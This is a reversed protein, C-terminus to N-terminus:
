KEQELSVIKVCLVIVHMAEKLEALSAYTPALRISNDKPNDSFPYTANAATLVVGINKLMAVIKSACNDKTTLHIFYGGKPKSWEVLNNDGFEEELVNLIYEFKPAIIQKHKEMHLLTTEKDKLFNVLRKQNIKDFGITQKSFSQKLDALNSVSTGIAVMGSGPMTIKSTSTFMIVRDPYTSKALDFINEIEIQEDTLHHVVYANDWLIKFDDAAADLKALREIVEKSYIEGTPNSYKPVCFIGKISDDDKVLSEVLDMDPGEGTLPIPIMEFGFHALMGFHRDYGPTPCLFKRKDDKFWPNAQHYTLHDLVAYMLQLSSNGGVYIEDSTVDLIEAFYQRAELIGELGGYNRIDVGDETYFDDSLDIDLLPASLALQEKSPIGRSINLQMPQELYRQYETKLATLQDM